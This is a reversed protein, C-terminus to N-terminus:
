GDLLLKMDKAMLGYTLSDSSDGSKGQARSDPVIVQYYKSFEPIQYQWDKISQSNGHLLLLPEGDGYIEYYLNIGNVFIFKGKPNNGFDQSFVTSSIFLLIAALYFRM